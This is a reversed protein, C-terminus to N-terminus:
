APVQTGCADSAAEVYLEDATPATVVGPAPPMDIATLQAELRKIRAENGAVRRGADHARRAQRLRRIMRDRESWQVPRPRGNPLSM